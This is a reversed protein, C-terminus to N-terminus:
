VAVLERVITFAAAFAVVLGLTLTPDFAAVLSPARLRAIIALELGIVVALLAVVAEGFRWFRVPWPSKEEVLAEDGRVENRVFQVDEVGQGLLHTKAKGVRWRDLDDNPLDYGYCVLYDYERSFHDGRVRLDTADSRGYDTYVVIGVGDVALDCPASDARRVVPPEVVDDLYTRLSGILNRRYEADSRWGALADVVREYRVRESM